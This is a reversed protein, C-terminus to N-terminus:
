GFGFLRRPTDWLLKRRDDQDSFLLETLAAIRDYGVRERARLCPWDSGWVCADLTFTEALARVYPWTDAYPYTQRSYKVHGSLKVAVRGRESLGLLAKFGPQDLGREPVPRGCHDVLLAGAFRRLLPLLDVMQDQEVQIQLFLDLEAVKALLERTDRYYDVGHFTPNFAVGVIGQAKLSALEDIGADHRAVAIGKFRGPHRAIADLMCRNDFGYGSNPEVLLAHRVNQTDMLALFQDASNLEVGAPHYPNDAGYPFRAPDFIHNHCDIKAEASITM